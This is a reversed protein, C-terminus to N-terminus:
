SVSVTPTTLLLCLSWNTSPCSAMTTLTWLASRLMSAIHCPHRPTGAHSLLYSDYAATRQDTYTRAHTRAHTCAHTLTHTHTHTHTHAHTRAHTRARARKQKSDPCPPSYILLPIYSLTGRYSGLLPLRQCSASLVTPPPLSSPLLRHPLSPPPPPLWAARDVNGPRCSSLMATLKILLRSSSSLYPVPPVGQRLERSVM